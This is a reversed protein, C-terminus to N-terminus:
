LQWRLALLLSNGHAVLWSARTEFILRHQSSNHDLHAASAAVRLEPPQLGPLDGAHEAAVHVNARSQCCVLAARKRSILRQKRCRLFRNGPDMRSEAWKVHKAAEM